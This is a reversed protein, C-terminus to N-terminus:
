KFRWTITGIGETTRNKPVSFASKLSEQECSRRVSQNAWAAGTGSVARAKVVKGRNNVHVQVTVSGISPSHPRGWYAVTYGVLGGGLSAHGQVPGSNSNGDPSGQSKGGGDGKAGFANKMKSNIANSTSSATARKVAPKPAAPKPNSKAAGPKVVPEPKTDDKKVKMPSPQKTTIPQPQVPSVQGADERDDGEPQPQDSVNGTADESAAESANDTPTPEAIDGLKVFEEGGLEEIFISDEHQVIPDMGEPPYQFHLQTFVLLLLLAITLLATIIFAAIESKKNNM